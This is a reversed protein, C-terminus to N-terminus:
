IKKGLEDHHHTIASPNKSLDQFRKTNNNDAVHVTIM